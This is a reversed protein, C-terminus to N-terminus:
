IDIGSNKIKLYRLFILVEAIVDDSTAAIEQLLLARNNM